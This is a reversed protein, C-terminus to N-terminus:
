RLVRDIMRELWAWPLLRRALVLVATGRGIAYRLRPRRKNVLRGILQAVQQPHPAHLASHRSYTLVAELHDNYPSDATTYIASLGKNWIATRYAGPEVLVVHVGFRSMEQRLSESFGEVAFKSTAYPAYGPFAAIGSISSMNIIMGSRQQRMIPLVARTVAIMGFLNTELQSRWAEMPVHEVFGGVAYGANNILVDLRGYQQLLTAIAQAITHEEHVDLQVYDIRSQLGQQIAQQELEARRSLDRMTAIVHWGQRALVLAILLGFGSSSGTILAVRSGSRENAGTAASETSRHQRTHPQATPHEKVM